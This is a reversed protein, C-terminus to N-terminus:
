LKKWWPRSHYEAEATAIEAYDERDGPEPNEKMAKEFEETAMGLEVLRQWAYNNWGEQEEETWKKGSFLGM